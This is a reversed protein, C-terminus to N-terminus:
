TPFTNREPTQNPQKANTGIHCPYNATIYGDKHIDCWKVSALKSSATKEKNIDNNQIAYDYPKINKTKLCM